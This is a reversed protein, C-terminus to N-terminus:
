ARRELKMMEADLWAALEIGMFMTGPPFKAGPTVQIRGQPHNLTAPETCTWVGDGDRVFHRIFDQM